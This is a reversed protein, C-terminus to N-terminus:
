VRVMHKTYVKIWQDVSIGLEGMIKAPIRIKEPVHNDEPSASLVLRIKVFMQTVKLRKKKKNKANVEVNM